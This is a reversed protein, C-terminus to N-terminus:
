PVDTELLNDMNAAPGTDFAVKASGELVGDSVNADFDSLTGTFTGALYEVAFGVTSYIRDVSWTGDTLAETQTSSM